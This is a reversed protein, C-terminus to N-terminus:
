LPQDAAPTIDLEGIVDLYFFTYTVNTYPILWLYGIGFTFAALINWGIFSLQLYFCRGKNGKMLRSSTQIAEIAKMDTHDMLLYVALFFYLSVIVTLVMSILFGIIFTALAAGNYPNAIWWIMGIIMPVEALVTCLFMLLNVIIIRDPHHTFGYGIDGIGYADKRCFSIYMKTVGASVISTILSVILSTLLTLLYSGISFTHSSYNGTASAIFATYGGTFAFIIFSTVVGILLTIVTVCMPISYRGNLSKRALQKLMASTKKM